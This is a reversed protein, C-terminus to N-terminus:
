KQFKSELYSLKNKLENIRQSYDYLILVAAIVFFFDFASHNAFGAVFGLFMALLAIAVSNWTNSKQM